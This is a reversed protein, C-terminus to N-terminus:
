SHTLTKGMAREILELLEKQRQAYFAEFDDSRLPAVPIHHSRLLENIAIDDIQVQSHSQLLALYVSPASGGIM